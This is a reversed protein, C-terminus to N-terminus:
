DPSTRSIPATTADGPDRGPRGAREPEPAFAREALAALSAGDAERAWTVLVTVHGVVVDLVDSREERVLQALRVAAANDPLEILAGRDGAPRVRVTM